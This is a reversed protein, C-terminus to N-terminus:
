GVAFGLMVMRSREQASLSMLEPRSLIRKFTEIAFRGSQEAYDRIDTTKFSKSESGPGLTGHVLRSRNNYLKRVSTFQDKRKDIDNPSLLLSM